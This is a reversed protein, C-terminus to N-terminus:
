TLNGPSGKPTAKITNPSVFLRAAIEHNSLGAALLRAVKEEKGSLVATLREGSQPHPSIAAFSAILRASFDAANNDTDVCGDGARFAATTNTLAPAPAAGEFCNTAPGYGVFDVVTAASPGFAAAERM